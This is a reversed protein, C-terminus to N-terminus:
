TRTRQTVGPGVYDYESISITASVTSTTSSIETPQVFAAGITATDLACVVMPLLVLSKSMM